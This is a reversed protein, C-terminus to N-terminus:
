AFSITVPLHPSIFVSHIIAAATRADAGYPLKQGNLFYEVVAAVKQGEVRVLDPMITGEVTEAADTLADRVSGGAAIIDLDLVNRISLTPATAKPARALAYDQANGLVADGTLFGGSANLYQVTSPAPQNNSYTNAVYGLKAPYTALTQQPRTGVVNFDGAYVCDAAQLQQSAFGILTAYFSGRSNDQGAPAQFVVLPVTRSATVNLQVCCPRRVNLQQHIDGNPDSTGGAESVITREPCVAPPFGLPAFTGNPDFTIDTSQDNFRLPRGAFVMGLYRGRSAKANIANPDPTDIGSSLTSNAYPALAGDRWLTAYGENNGAQTFGLQEFLTPSNVATIQSGPLWDYHWVANAPHGNLQSALLGLFAVGQRKLGQIVLVDAQAAAAVAAILQCRLDEMLVPNAFSGFRTGLQDIDWVMATFPM